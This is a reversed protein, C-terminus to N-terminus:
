KGSHPVTIAVSSQTAQGAADTATVTVTYVRGPGNGAREARLRVLHNNVVEWDPATNGDGNGNVAESSTVSVTTAVPGCQDAATYGIAVDVMKHNAPWLRTTSASVGSLAPASNTVVVGISATNNAGDPDSTDSTATATTTVIAANPVGCGIAATFTFTEVGDVPIASFTTTSGNATVTVNQAPSIGHNTVAVTYTVSAGAAATAQDAAITVSLDASPPPFRFFAVPMDHDSSREPRTADGALPGQAPFDSNGRAVAYRQVYGNAVTNVLVHDLAQPTGEFLFSYQQGAPLSDTLNVYDPNVVDASADVVIEEDPTPSGKLIAIPDTYGDNFQYANYDGVSIVAVGPNGAQLDQLLQATDEAQATRKARVRDGEVGVLGVDIFSRMHNVVVIVQRPNVGNADVTAYLVLPPRDHLLASGGGPPTFAGQPHAVVADIRVRSTKVLFGVNQTSAEGSATVAVVLEAQYTPNPEGAAIADANVQDALGQLTAKDLIEIHGIVDPSHMLQRIALAAKKKRTENGAFNEINFGAVTFEGAAPAPVPVGAMNSGVAPAVEPVIKYAGFSFDLPGVVGDLTVNSTVSIVAAGSRGETDIFIREPNGDFRPICCDVVGTTPDPPVPDALPIGPERMPRPVGPLVTAIEGFEDTPAVSVLSAAQMRMGEFRELSSGAPDLIATTLTVAAPVANGQSIVTIDGPLSAELQTLDFYETATGRASIDDGILVAPLAGTFVFVAESTLPNLDYAAAPAQLFFGNSKKLTVVGTTIVDQGLFPTADGSGQIDHIAATTPTCSRFPTASNRPTPEGVSFDVSNQDSDYCGGRKRLAATISSLTATPASGEWCNAGGYGVVDVVGSVPCSVAVPTTSAMLAVKGAGAAMAISGNVDAVPLPSGNAGTSQRVLFYGGPAITGTLPTVLWNNGDASASSNYQVSWNTLTVATTGANFLEVFDANLPAGLNGGGGYVQSIVVDSVIPPAVDDNTITGIGQGDAITAGSVGSLNVTFTENPEVTGDGNITVAFAYTTAGSAIQQGAEQRAEYDLDALTATGNATAIDFTIGTHVGTSATVTFTATVPGSNGEMVTVNNISLSPLVVGGSRPTVSVDDVALGDDAGAADASAWRLAITGGPAISLSSITGAVVMRNAAANGDLAGTSGTTIPAVFDLGNVDVWAGNNVASADLSYQVDLRDARNLAGLRWQEGAYSVDLSTITDGTNNVFIGGITPTNSGSQLGGLAREANTGSGFSYTNGTNSSGDGAAYTTNGSTGAEVFEWGAPTATNATGSTALTNFDQTYAVDIASLAAQGAAFPNALNYWAAGALLALVSTIRFLKM